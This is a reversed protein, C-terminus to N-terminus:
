MYALLNIAKEGNKKKHTTGPSSSLTWMKLWEMLRKKHHIKKRSLSEPVRQRPLSQVM